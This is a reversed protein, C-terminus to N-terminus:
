GIAVGAGLNVIDNEYSFTNPSLYYSTMCTVSTGAMSGYHQQPFVVNQRPTFREAIEDYYHTGCYDCKHQNEMPAGCQRCILAKM